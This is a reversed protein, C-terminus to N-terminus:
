KTFEEIIKVDSYFLKEGNVDQYEERGKGLIVLVDNNQLEVLGKRIAYGRETFVEYDNNKFGSIIQKNIDDVSEFRPNDPTIFCRDVYKEAISAMVPRKTKDRNGGAGFVLTIKSNETTLERITSLVKDYADPTHAYDVIVLGGNQMSFTEMRGPVNKCATIGKVIHNKKINASHAVAVAALINDLNFKGILSTKINYTQDAAQIIGEIGNLYINHSKFYVDRQQEQSTALVPVNCENELIKGYNDDINLIATSTIPLMKFLKSKAHYYNEMTKHYDLHEPTLNTFVVYDFDIDAVRYQDLAHSSVEMVVHTFGNEFLESFQRQLTIPDATTLDRKTIFGEAILGFTGMQAIKIGATSFISRILSATTTKGNTGTIGIVTLDRTPHNNFDAAIISAARRPNAVKIQPVSLTGVDRGNTIVAVAGKKIAQQIYDHGDLNTGAIAIFLNGKEITRSDISLGNVQVKPIQEHTSIVQKVIENLLM